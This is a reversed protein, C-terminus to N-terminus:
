SPHKSFNKIYRIFVFNINHHFCTKILFNYFIRIQNLCHLIAYTRFRFNDSLRIKGFASQTRINISHESIHISCVVHYDHLSTFHCKNLKESLRIQGFLDSYKGFTGFHPNFVRCSLRSTVCIWKNMQCLRLSQARVFAGGTWDVCVPWHSDVNNWALREPRHRTGEAIWRRELSCAVIM